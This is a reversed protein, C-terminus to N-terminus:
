ALAQDGGGGMEDRQRGSVAAEVGRRDLRQDRLLEEREAVDEARDVDPHHGAVAADVRLRRDDAAGGLHEGVDRQPVAGLRVGVQHDHVLEVVVGVRVAAPGPLHRQDLQRPGLEQEHRGREAVDGPELLVTSNVESLLYSPLVVRRSWARSNWWIAPRAPLAPNSSAPMTTTWAGSCTMALSFASALAPSSGLFRRLTTRFFGGGPRTEHPWGVNSRSTAASGSGSLDLKATLWAISSLTIARGPSANADIRCRSVPLWSSRGAWRRWM